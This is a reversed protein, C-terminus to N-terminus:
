SRSDVHPVARGCDLAGPLTQLRRQASADRTKVNTLIGIEMDGDQTTPKDPRVILIKTLARGKGRPVDGEAGFVEGTSCGARGSVLPRVRFRHHSLQCSVV